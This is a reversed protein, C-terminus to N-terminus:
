FITHAHTRPLWCSGGCFGCCASVSGSGLKIKTSGHEWPGVILKYETYSDLETNMETHMQMQKHTLKHTVNIHPGCKSCKKREENLALTSSLNFHTWPSQNNGNSVTSISFTKPGRVRDGVSCMPLSPGLFAGVRARLGWTLVWSHLSVHRPVARRVNSIIQVDQEQWKRKSLSRHQRLTVAWVIWPSLPFVQKFPTYSVAPKTHLSFLSCEGSTKKITTEYILFEFSLGWWRWVVCLSTLLQQKIM